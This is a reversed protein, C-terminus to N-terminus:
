LPPTFARAVVCSEQAASHRLIMRYGFDTELETKNARTSRSLIYTLISKKLAHRIRTLDIISQAM